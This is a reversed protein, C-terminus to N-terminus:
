FWRTPTVFRDDAETIGDGIGSIIDTEGVDIMERLSGKKRVAFCEEMRGGTTVGIATEDDVEYTGLKEEREILSKPLVM